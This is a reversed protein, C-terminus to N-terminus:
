GASEVFRQDIWVTFADASKKRVGSYRAAAAVAAIGIVGYRFSLNTTEGALATEALTSQTKSTATKNMETTMGKREELYCERDRFHVEIAASIPPLDHGIAAISGASDKNKGMLDRNEGSKPAFEEFPRSRM